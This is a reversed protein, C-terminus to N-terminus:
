TIIQFKGIVECDRRERESLKRGTSTEPLAALLNVPKLPSHLGHMMSMGMGMGMGMPAPDAPQMNHIPTNAPSAEKSTQSSAMSDESPANNVSAAGGATMPNSKQQKQKQKQEQSQEENKPAPLM